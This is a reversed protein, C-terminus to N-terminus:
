ILEDFLDTNNQKYRFTVARHQNLLASVKNEEVQDPVRVCVLADEGQATQDDGGESLLLKERGGHNVSEM